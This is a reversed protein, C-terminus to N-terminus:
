VCLPEKLYLATLSAYSVYFVYSIDSVCLSRSIYLPLHLMLCMFRMRYILRM